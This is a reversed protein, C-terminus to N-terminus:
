VLLLLPLVCCWAVVAVVTGDLQTGSRVREWMSARAQACFFHFVCCSCCCVVDCSMLCCPFETAADPSKPDAIGVNQNLVACRVHTECFGRHDMLLLSEKHLYNQTTFNEWTDERHADNAVAKKPTCRLEITHRSTSSPRVDVHVISTAQPSGSFFLKLNQFMDRM